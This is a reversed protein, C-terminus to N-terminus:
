ISVLPECLRALSVRGALWLGSVLGVSGAELWIGPM